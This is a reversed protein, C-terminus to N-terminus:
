HSRCVALSSSKPSRHHLSTLSALRPLLLCLSLVIPQSVQDAAPDLMELANDLASLLTKRCLSRFQERQRPLNEPIARAKTGSEPAGDAVEDEVSNEVGMFNFFSAPLARSALSAASLSESKTSSRLQERGQKELLFLAQPLVLNLLKVTNTAHNLSVSLHLCQDGSESHTSASPALSSEAVYGPPVYLCDGPELTFRQVHYSALCSRDTLFSLADTPPPPPALSQGMANSTGSAPTSPDYIAWSEAGDLQLVFVDGQTLSPAFGQSQSRVSIPSVFAECTLPTNFEHELASLFRWLGEHYKQPHNLRLSFGQELARAIGEASIFQSEQPLETVPAEKTAKKASGSKSNGGSPPLFSQVGSSPQYKAILLDLPYDLAHRNILESLQEKDFLGAFLGKKELTAAMAVPSRQWHTSYFDSRELPFAIARMLAAAREESTIDVVERKELLSIVGEPKMSSSPASSATSPPPETPSFFELEASGKARDSDAALLLSPRSRNQEKKRRKAARSEGQSERRSDSM